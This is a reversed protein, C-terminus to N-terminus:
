YRDNFEPRDQDSGFAEIYGELAQKTTGHRSLLRSTEHFEVIRSTKSPTLKPPFMASVAETPIRVNGGAVTAMALESISRTGSAVPPIGSPEDLGDDSASEGVNAAHGGPTLVTLDKFRVKSPTKVLDPKKRKPRLSPTSAERQLPEEEQNPRPPPTSPQDGPISAKRQQVIAGVIMKEVDARSHQRTLPAKAREPMQM